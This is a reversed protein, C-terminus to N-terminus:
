RCDAGAKNWNRVHRSAQSFVKRSELKLKSLHISRSVFEGGGKTFPQPDNGILGAAAIRLTM